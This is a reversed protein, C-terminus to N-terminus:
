KCDFILIDGWIQDQVLMRTKCNENIFVVMDDIRGIGYGKRIIIYSPKKKNFFKILDNINIIGSQFVLLNTDVINGIIYRDSLLAIMPTFLSDGFLLDNEHSKYNFFNTIDQYKFDLHDYRILRNYLPYSYISFFLILIICSLLLIKKKKYLKSLIIALAYSGILSLLPFILVFYFDFIRNLVILFLFYIIVLTAFFSINKKKKKTFFILLPTLFIFTNEKIVKFFVSPFNGEQKPKLLHYKYVSTTYNQSYLLIFLVNVLVFIISFGILFNKVPHTSNRQKLLLQVLIAITIILSYLGTIGALGFFIGSLLYKKRQLIYLGIVVFMTTINIGYVYTTMLLVLYSNLYFFSCILATLNGFKQKTLKFLFFVAILQSIVGISRLALINFGFLKYFMTIILLHLPPHSFFFDKYFFKGETMLKAMYFYTYDDGPVTKNIGKSVILSFFLIILIFLIWTTKNDLKFKM